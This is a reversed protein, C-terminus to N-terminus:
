TTRSKRRSWELQRLQCRQLGRNRWVVCGYSRLSTDFKVIRSFRRVTRVGLCDDRLIELQERQLSGVDVDATHTDIGFLLRVGVDAGDLDLKAVVVHSHVLGSRLLEHTM